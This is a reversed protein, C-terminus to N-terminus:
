IAQRPESFKGRRKQEITSTLPVAIDLLPSHERACLVKDLMKKEPTPPPLKAYTAQDYANLVKFFGDFTGDRLYARTSEKKSM